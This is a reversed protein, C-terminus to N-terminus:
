TTYPTIPGRLKFSTQTTVAEGSSGGPNLPATPYCNFYIKHGTAFTFKLAREGKVLDAKRLEILAPDAPDWLNGFTYSLASKVGPIEKETDDHITTINISAADGGSGNIDQVTACAAGFTIAEATGSTFTNFLTSDVGELEFTNAAVNAVRVVMFNAEIMGAVKLVVETGNSYGHATSTAVAPNAKTIATITKAAALATQVAVAVKSWVNVTLAM